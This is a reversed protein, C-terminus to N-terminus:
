KKRARRYPYQGPAHVPRWPTIFRGLWGLWHNGYQETPWSSTSADSVSLTAASLTAPLVTLIMLLLYLKRDSM